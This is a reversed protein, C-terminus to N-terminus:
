EIEGGKRALHRMFFCREVNEMVQLEGQVNRGVKCSHFSSCQDYDSDDPHGCREGGLGAGIEGDADREAARAHIVSWHHHGRWGRRDACRWDYDSWRHDARWPGHDISWRRHIASWRWNVDRRRRDAPRHHVDRGMVGPIVVPITIAVIPIASATPVRPPAFVTTTSVGTVLGRACGESGTAGTENKFPLGIATLSPFGPKLGTEGEGSGTGQKTDSDKFADSGRVRGTMEPLGLARFPCGSYLGPYPRCVAVGPLWDWYYIEGRGMPHPSPVPTLPQRVTPNM